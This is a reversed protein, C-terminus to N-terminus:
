ELYKFATSKCKDATMNHKTIKVIIPWVKNKVYDVKCATKSIFDRYPIPGELNAIQQQDAVLMNNKRSKNEAIKNISKMINAKDRIDHKTIVM